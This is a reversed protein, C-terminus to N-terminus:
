LRRTGVVYYFLERGFDSAIQASELDPDVDNLYQLRLVDGDALEPVIGAFFFGLAEIGACVRAAAPHALPLDLGIWDIRRVSLERLRRRVQDTLDLGYASVLLLAESWEPSVDVRIRATAPLEPPPDVTSALRLERRLRAREYIRRITEAHQAPPYVVRPPEENTRRYYLITTTRKQPIVGAMEKFAVRPAEDALQVGVESAGLAIEGKQSFPHVTVAEAYIGLLGRATAHENLLTRMKEFLRHGRFRPDVMAEGANGVAATPHDLELDLYGVVEGDPTVGVYALYLGGQLLECLRDPFYLKEDPCTYGYTRYTCRAVGVADEPAMLRLTVPVDHSSPAMPARPAATADAHDAEAPQFALRKVIEVRNGRPGLSSFRVADIGGKQALAGLPSEGAALPRFDFPIGRDEVSVVVAGPRRLLAVEFTGAEDAEFAHDIVNSCVIKVAQALAVAHTEGLGLRNAVGRVFGLAADLYDAKAVLILRAIAREAPPPPSV